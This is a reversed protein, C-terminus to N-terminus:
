AVFIPTNLNTTVNDISVFAYVVVTPTAPLKSVLNNMTLNPM